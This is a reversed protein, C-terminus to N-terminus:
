LGNMWGSSGKRFPYDSTDADLHEVWMMEARRNAIRWGDSTEAFEDHYRILMVMSETTSGEGLLHHATCYTVGRPRTGALDCRFGSISHFTRVFQDVGHVVQALEVTGSARFYPESQGPNTATFVGDPTFLAAWGEYDRQDTLWGYEDVLSRLARLTSGPSDRHLM